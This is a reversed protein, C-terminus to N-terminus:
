IYINPVEYTYIQCWCKMMQKIGQVYNLIHQVLFYALPQQLINKKNPSKSRASIKTHVTMREKLDSGFLTNSFLINLFCM